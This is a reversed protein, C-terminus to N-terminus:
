GYFLIIQHWVIGLRWLSGYSHHDALFYYHAFGLRGIMLEGPLVAKSHDRHQEDDGQEADGNHRQHVHYPQVLFRLDALLDRGIETLFRTFIELNRNIQYFCCLTDGIPVAVRWGGLHCSKGARARRTNGRNVGIKKARLTQEVCLCGVARSGRGGAVAQHRGEYDVAAIIGPEQAKDNDGAGTGFRALYTDICRFNRCEIAGIVGQGESLESTRRVIRIDNM